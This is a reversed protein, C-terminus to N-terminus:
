GMIVELIGPHTPNGRQAQQTVCVSWTADTAHHTSLVRDKLMWGLVPLQPALLLQAETGVVKLAARDGDLIM